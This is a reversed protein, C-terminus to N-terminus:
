DGVFKIIKREKIAYEILELFDNMISMSDSISVSALNKLNDVESKLDNLKNLYVEEEGFYDSLSKSLIPFDDRNKIQGRIFNYDDLYLPIIKIPEDHNDTILIDLPM